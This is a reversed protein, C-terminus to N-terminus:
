AFVNGFILKPIISILNMMLSSLGGIVGDFLPTFLLAMFVIMIYREYRMIGFYVDDPLFVSLVRSGDLPPIPILNFVALTANISAAYYLFFALLSLAESHTFAKVMYAFFVFIFSMILNSVPGALATLAMGKRPNKFNAPNIPVPNAYGIGFLFIMITGIPNMQVLPNFSLRGNNKATNDGLKYAVYGHALEHVPLCCFLVFARSLLILIVYAVDGNRIASFLGMIVGKSNVACPLEQM